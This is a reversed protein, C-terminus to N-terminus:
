GAATRPCPRRRRPGRRPRRSRWPRPPRNSRSGTARACPYAAVDHGLDLHERGVDVLRRHRDRAGAAIRRLETLSTEGSRSFRKKTCSSPCSSARRLLQAVHADERRVAHDAVRRERAEVQDGAAIQQDVQLGRQLALDDRQEMISQPRAAIEKEAKRLVDRSVVVQEKREVLFFRRKWRRSRKARGRM